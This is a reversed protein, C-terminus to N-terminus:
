AEEHPPGMVDERGPGDPGGLIDRGGTARNGVDRSKGSEGPLAIDLDPLLEPREETDRPSSNASM